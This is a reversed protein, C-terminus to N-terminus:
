NTPWNNEHRILVKPGSNPFLGYGVPGKKNIGKAVNNSIYLYIYRALKTILEM